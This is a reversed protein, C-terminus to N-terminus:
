EDFRGTKTKSAPKHKLQVPGQRPLNVTFTSGREPTSQVDIHGQHSRVIGGVISLGLGTGQGLPKTTFFPDFIKDIALSPIGMGNDVVKLIARDHEADFRTFIEVQGGGPMADRANHLLNIFMQIIKNRECVVAPMNTDLHTIILVNDKTKLQNEVLVLTDQVLGNIDEAQMNQPTSRAYDQLSRVIDAIRWSSRNIMDLKRTFTEAHIEGNQTNHLLIESTGTIIQLPTNIEHAMGAALTGIGAMKESEVLKKEMLHMETIDRTITGVLPGKDSEIRLFSMQVTRGSGNQTSLNLELIRGALRSRPSLFIKRLTEATRSYQDYSLCGAMLHYFTSAAADKRQIGTIKEQARNWELIKGSQDLLIIGESAEEIFHRLKKEEQRLTTHLMANEIVVSAIRALHSITDVRMEDLDYGNEHYALGLEGVVRRDSSILPFVAMSKVWNWDKPFPNHSQLPNHIVEPLTTKSIRNFLVAKGIKIRQGTTENFYGTGIRMVLEDTQPDITSVYGNPIKALSVASKLISQLSGELDLNSIMGVSVEQLAALYAVQTRQAEEISKRDTIDLLVVQKAPKNQFTSTEVIVELWRTQGDNRLIRFDFLDPIPTGDIHDQFYTKLYDADDTHIYKFLAAIPTLMESPQLGVLRAADANAAVVQGNQTMVIGQLAHKTYDPQSKNSDLLGPEYHALRAKLSAVEEELNAIKQKSHTMSDAM